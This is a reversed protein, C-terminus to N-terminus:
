TFFGTGLGEQAKSQKRKERCSSCRKPLSYGKNTYWIEESATLSFIAGCDKCTYNSDVGGTYHEFGVYNGHTSLNHVIDSWRSSSAYIVNDALDVPVMDPTIPNEGELEYLEFVAVSFGTDKWKVFGNETYPTLVPKATLRFEYVQYKFDDWLYYGPEKYGAIIDRSRELRELVDIYPTCGANCDRTFIDIYHDIVDFINHIVGTPDVDDISQRYLWMHQHCHDNTFEILRNELTDM